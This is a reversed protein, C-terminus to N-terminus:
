ITKLQNSISFCLFYFLLFFISLGFGVQRGLGSGGERKEGVWGTRKEKRVGAWCFPALGVAACLVVRTCRLQWPTGVQCGCRAEGGEHSRARRGRVDVGAHGLLWGGAARGAWEAAGRRASVGSSPAGGVLGKGRRSGRALSRACGGLAVRPGGVLSVESLHGRTIRTRGKVPLGWRDASGEACRM